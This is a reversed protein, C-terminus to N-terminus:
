GIVVHATDSRLFCAELEGETCQRLPRMKISTPNFRRRISVGSLSAPTYAVQETAFHPCPLKSEHGGTTSRDGQPCVGVVHAQCSHKYSHLMLREGECSVQAILNAHDVGNSGDKGASFAPQERQPLGHYM